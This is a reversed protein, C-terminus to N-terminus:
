GEARRGRVRAVLDPPQVPPAPRAQAEGGALDSSGRAVDVDTWAPAAGARIGPDLTEVLPEPGDDGIVVVLDVGRLAAVLAARDQAPLVPRGAGLLSAASADGRVGVVLRAAHRKAAALARIHAVELLDFAGIAFAVVEGGARWRALIEAGRGASVLKGAARHPSV